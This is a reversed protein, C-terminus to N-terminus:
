FELQLQLFTLFDGLMNRSSARSDCQVSILHPIVQSLIDGNENDNMTM